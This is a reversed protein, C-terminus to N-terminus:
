GRYFLGLGYILKDFTIWFKSDDNWASFDLTNYEKVQETVRENPYQGV